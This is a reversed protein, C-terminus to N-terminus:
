NEAQIGAACLQQKKLCNAGFFRWIAGCTNVFFPAHAFAVMPLAGADVPNLTGLKLLRSIENRQTWV